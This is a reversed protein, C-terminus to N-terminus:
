LKRTKFRKICGCCNTQVEDQFLIVSLKFADFRFLNIRLSCPLLVLVLLITIQIEGYIVIRLILFFYFASPRSWLSCKSRYCVVLLVSAKCSTNNTKGFQQENMHQYTQYTEEGETMMLILCLVMNLLRVLCILQVSRSVFLVFLGHKVAKLPPKILILIKRVTWAKRFLM